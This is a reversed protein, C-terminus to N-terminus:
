GPWGGTTRSGRHGSGDASSPFLAVGRPTPPARRALVGRDRFWERECERPWGCAALGNWRGPTEESRGCRLVGDVERGVERNPGFPSTTTPATAAGRDDHQAPRRSALDAPRTTSSRSRRPSLEMHPRERDEQRERVGGARPYPEPGAEAGGAGGVWAHRRTPLCHTYPRPIKQGGAGIALASVRVPPILTRLPCTLTRTVPAGAGAALAFVTAMEPERAVFPDCVVPYAPTSCGASWKLAASPRCRTVPRDAAVATRSSGATTRPGTRGAPANRTGRARRADAREATTEESNVAARVRWGEGGSEVSGVEAMRSWV